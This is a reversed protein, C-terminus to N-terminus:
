KQGLELINLAVRSVEKSQLIPIPKPPCYKEHRLKGFL